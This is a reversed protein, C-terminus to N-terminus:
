LPYTITPWETVKVRLPRLKPMVDGLKGKVRGNSELM